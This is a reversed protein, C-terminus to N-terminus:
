SEGPREGRHKRRREAAFTAVCNPCVIRLNELRNDDRVGNIHDLVLPLPRGRWVDGQGCIECVPQKLGADYLRAKLHKRSYTSGEVLIEDIPRAPRGVARRRAVDADFHDTDIGWRVAWRQLTLWNGGTTRLGLRRLAETYSFSAAVAKRADQESYRPVFM